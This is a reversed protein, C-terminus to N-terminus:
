VEYKKFKVKPPEVKVTPTKKASSRKRSSTSSKTKLASAMDKYTGKSAKFDSVKIPVSTKVTKSSGGSRRYGGRRRYGKGSKGKGQKALAQEYTQKGSYYADYLAKKTQEPADLTSLYDMITGQNYTYRAEGGSDNEYYGKKSANRDFDVVQAYTVIGAEIAPMLAKRKSETVENKFNYEDVDGGQAKIVAQEGVRRSANATTSNYPNDLTWLGNILKQKEAPDANKFEPQKYVWQEVERMSKGEFQEILANKREQTYADDRPVNNGKADTTRRNFMINELAYRMGEAGGTTKAQNYTSIDKNSMQVEEGAVNFSSKSQKKPFLYALKEPDEGNAVRQEYEALKQEDVESFDVKQINMPSLFNKVASAVYDGFDDKKNKVNGYADTDAGLPEIGLTKTVANEGALGTKVKLQNRFYQGDSAQPLQKDSKYATRAIQGAMTPVLSNIYSQVTERLLIEAEGLKDDNGYGGRMTELIGHLGSLMSTEMVPEALRSAVTAWDGLIGMGVDGAKLQNAMEVGAFFTASTPVLWDLTFSYGQGTEPDKFTISYNQMGRDKKFKAAPDDKGANTTFRDTTKGLLMGLSFVGTGTLGSALEDIARNMLEVDGAKAASSINAFGKAIGIPSYNISQKMLNAPVKTFPMVANVGRGVWRAGRSANADSANRTIKNLARAFENYENFTAIQAEKIAEDQIRREVKPTMPVGDKIYRNYSKIYNERFARQRFADDEKTLLKSNFDALKDLAKGATTKARGTYMQTEYKAGGLIETKREEFAKLARKGADTTPNKTHAEKLAMLDWGGHKAIDMGYKRGVAGEIASRFMNSTRRIPSFFASGLVNRIHTKPNGLMNLYRLEQLVDFKAKPNKTNLTLMLEAFADSVDDLENADVVKKVGKNIADDEMLFNRIYNRKDFIGSPMNARHEKMFGDSHYLINVLDDLIADRKGMPTLHVFNRRLNLTQGGKSSINQALKFAETYAIESAKDASPDVTGMIYQVRAQWEPTDRFDLAGGENIDIMEKVYRDADDRMQKAVKDYLDASSIAEYDLDGNEVLKQRLEREAESDMANLQSVAVKSQRVKEGKAHSASYEKSAQWAENWSTLIGDELKEGNNYDYASRAQKVGSPMKGSIPTDEAVNNVKIGDDAEKAGQEAIQEVRGELDNTAENIATQQPNTSPMADDVGAMEDVSFDTRPQKRILAEAEPTGEYPFSEEVSPVTPKSKPNLMKAAEDASAMKRGVFEEIAEFAEPSRKLLAQPDDLFETMAHTITESASTAGIDGYLGEYYTRQGNKYADSTPPVEKEKVFIGVFERWDGTHEAMLEDSWNHAVEHNLIYRQVEEPHEFFKDSVHIETGWSSAESHEKPTYKIPLGGYSAQGSTIADKTPVKAGKGLVEDAAESVLAKPNAADDIVM